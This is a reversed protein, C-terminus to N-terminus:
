ISNPQFNPLAWLSTELSFQMRLPKGLKRGRGTTTTRSQVSPRRDHEDPLGYSCTGNMEKGGGEMIEEVKVYVSDYIACKAPSGVWRKTSAAVRTRHMNVGNAEGM